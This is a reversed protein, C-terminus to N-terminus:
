PVKRQRGDRIIEKSNTEDETIIKLWSYYNFFFCCSKPNKMFFFPEYAEAIWCLLPKKDYIVQVSKITFSIYIFIIVIDISIFCRVENVLANICSNFVNSTYANRVIESIEPTDNNRK